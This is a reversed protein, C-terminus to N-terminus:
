VFGARAASEQTLGSMALAEAIARRPGEGGASPFAPPLPAVGRRAAVEGGGARAPRRAAAFREISRVGSRGALLGDWFAEVGSGLASLAGLGTVVVRTEPVSMSETPPANTSSWNW